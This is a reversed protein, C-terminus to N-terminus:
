GHSDAEIAENTTATSNARGNAAGFVPWTESRWAADWFMWEYRAATVFANHMASVVSPSSNEACTDVIQRVRASALAFDPDGYTSIWDAYPHGSLEVGDKLRRGVDEYIWFCPLLAAALVPYDGRVATSLLFNVYAIGTPSPEVADLDLIRGEHLTREVEIADHAASGWFSIDDTDTAQAACMALARAYGLLYHADQALYGLFTASPLTGDRLGRLFPHTDIAERVDAARAWAVATFRRAPHHDTM